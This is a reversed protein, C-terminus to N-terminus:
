VGEGILVRVGEAAKQGMYEQQNARKELMQFVDRAKWTKQTSLKERLARYLELGILDDKVGLKTKLEEFARAISGLSTAQAFYEYVREVPLEGWAVNDMDGALDQLVSPSVRGGGASSARSSPRSSPEDLYDYPYLAGDTEEEAIGGIGADVDGENGGGGGPPEDDPFHEM